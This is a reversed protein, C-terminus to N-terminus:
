NVGYYKLTELSVRGKKDDLDIVYLLGKINVENSYEPLIRMESMIKDLLRRQDIYTGEPYSGERLSICGLTPRHPYYPSTPESNVRGTGHIRLWKRGADRAVSAQKWWDKDKASAPLMSTVGNDEPVWNLIMRRFKGYSLQNNAYPMVSDITHIGTPTNGNTQYYPYDRASKALAPTSWLSGDERRVLTDNRDKMIFLCPYYRNKRCFLFLKVGGKYQGEGYSEVPPSFYVLDTIEDSTKEKFAGAETIKDIAKNIKKSAEPSFSFSLSEFSNLNTAIKIAEVDSIEKLSIAKKPLVEFSAQMEMIQMRQAIDLSSSDVVSYFSYFEVPDLNKDLHKAWLAQVYESSTMQEPHDVETIQAFTNLSVLATVLIILLNRM